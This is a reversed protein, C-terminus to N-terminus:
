DNDDDHKTDWWAWDVTVETEEENWNILLVVFVSSQPAEFDISRHRIAEAFLYSKPLEEDDGVDSWKEYDRKRCIM